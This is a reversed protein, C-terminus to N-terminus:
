VFVRKYWPIKAYLMTLIDDRTTLRILGARPHVGFELLVRVSSTLGNGCAIQLCEDAAEDFKRKQQKNANVHVHEFLVRVITTHENMVAVRLPFAFYTLLENNAILLRVIDLHGNRCANSLAHNIQFPEHLMLRVIETYGHECADQLASSYTYSSWGGREVFLRALEINGDVCARRLGYSNNVAPNVGREVPLELLMRVVETQGHFCAFQLGDNMKVSPVDILLRVIELNGEQCAFVFDNNDVGREILLAVLGVNKNHIATILSMESMETTTAIARLIKLSLM